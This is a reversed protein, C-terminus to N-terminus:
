LIQVQITYDFQGSMDRGIYVEIDDNRFQDLIDKELFDAQMSKLNAAFELMNRDEFVLEYGESFDNLYREVFKYIIDTTIM